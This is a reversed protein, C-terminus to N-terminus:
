KSTYLYKCYQIYISLYKCKLVTLKQELYLGNSHCVIFLIVLRMIKLMEFMLAYRVVKIKCLKSALITM